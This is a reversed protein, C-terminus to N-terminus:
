NELLQQELDKQAKAKEKKRREGQLHLAALTVVWNYVTGKIAGDMKSKPCRPNPCKWVYENVRISRVRIKTRSEKVLAQAQPLLLTAM